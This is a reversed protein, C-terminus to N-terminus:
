MNPTSPTSNIPNTQLIPAKTPASYSPISHNPSYLATSTFRTALANVNYLPTNSTNMGMTQLIDHRIAEEHELRDAMTDLSISVIAALFTPWTDLKVPLSLCVSLPLNQRVMTILHGETDKLEDTISRIEETWVVHAYVRDGDRDIIAGVDTEDLRMQKLKGMLEKRSTVIAAQRSCHPESVM